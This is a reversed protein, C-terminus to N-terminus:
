VLRGLKNEIDALESELKEIETLPKRLEPAETLKVQKTAAPAKVAKTAKAAKVAKSKKKKPRSKHAVKKHRALAGTSTFGKHCHSCEYLKHEEHMPLRLKTKPMIMRLKNILTKLHKVDERIRHVAEQKEKRLTKLREFHQLYNVMDKSVELINRRIEVPEQLGVYFVEEETEKHPKKHHQAKKKKAM